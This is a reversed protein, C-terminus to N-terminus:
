YKSVLIHPTHLQSLKPPIAPVKQSSVGLWYQNECRLHRPHLQNQFSLLSGQGWHQINQTM